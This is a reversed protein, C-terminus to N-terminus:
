WLLLAAAEWSRTLGASAVISIKHSGLKERKDGILSDLEESFAWSLVSHSRREGVTVGLRPLM